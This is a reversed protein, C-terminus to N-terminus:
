IIGNVAEELKLIAEEENDEVLKELQSKEGEGTETRIAVCFNKGSDNDASWFATWRKFRWEFEYCRYIKGTEFPKSEFEYDLKVMEM